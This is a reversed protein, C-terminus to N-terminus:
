RIVGSCLKERVEFSIYDGSEEVKELRFRWDGNDSKELARIYIKWYHRYMCGAVCDGWGYSFQAVVGSYGEYLPVTVIEVTQKIGGFSNGGLYPVMSVEGFVSHFKPDERLRKAMFHLDVFERFMISLSARPQNLTFSETLLVGAVGNSYLWEVVELNKCDYEDDRDNSFESFSYLTSKLKFLGGDSHSPTEYSRLEVLCGEGITEAIKVIMDPNNPGGEKNVMTLSKGISPRRVFSGPDSPKRQYIFRTEPVMERAYRLAASMFSVEPGDAKLGNQHEPEFHHIALIFDEASVEYLGQATSASFLGAISL